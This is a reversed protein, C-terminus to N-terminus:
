FTGPTSESLSVDIGDTVVVATLVPTQAFVQPAIFFVLLFVWILSM